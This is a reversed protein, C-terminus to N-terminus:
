SSTAMNKLRTHLKHGLFKKAAVRPYHLAPTCRLFDVFGSALGLEQAGKGERWSLQYPEFRPALNIEPDIPDSGYLKKVVLMIETPGLASLCVREEFPCKWGCDFCPLSYYVVHQGPREPWPFFRRFPGGGLLVLVKPVLGSALHALGTDNGIFLDYKKLEGFLDSLSYQGLLNNVQGEWREIEEADRQDKLSDSGLLDVQWGAKVLEKALLSWTSVPARSSSGTISLAVRKKPSVPRNFNETEFYWPLPSGIGETIQNSFQWYYELESLVDEAIDVKNWGESFKEAQRMSASTPIQWCCFKEDAQVQSMLLLTSQRIFRRLSIAMTYKHTKLHEFVAKDSGQIVPIDKELHTLGPYFRIGDRSVYYVNRVGPIKEAIERNEECTILDLNGSFKKAFEAIVGSVLLLDGLGDNKIILGDGTETM